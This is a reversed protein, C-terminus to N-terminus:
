ISWRNDMFLPHGEKLFLLDCHSMAGDLPRRIVDAVEYPRFGKDILYVIVEHFLGLSQSFRYFPLELLLAQCMRISKQAGNLISMEYGQVDMKILDPPRIEKNALLEDITVVAVERTEEDSSGSTDSLFTSGYIDKTVVLQM